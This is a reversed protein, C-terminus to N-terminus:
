SIYGLGRVFDGVGGVGLLIVLEIGDHRPVHDDIRRSQLRERAAHEPAAILDLSPESLRACSRLSHMPYTTSHAKEFCQLSLHSDQQYTPRSHQDSSKERIWLDRIEQQELLSAILGLSARLSNCASEDTALLTLTSVLRYSADIVPM